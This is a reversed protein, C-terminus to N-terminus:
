ETSARSAAREQMAQLAQIEGLHGLCGKLVPKIWQYRTRGPRIDQLGPATEHIAEPPLRHLHEVLACCVTDLYTLLDAASLAPVVRAEELTYGTIAGFGAFGLGRPDYGTKVSWGQTFWQEKEQPRNEFARVLLLDLWRSFHWVTMGISNGESDPKWALQENTLKEVVDRTDRALEEIWEALLEIDKV